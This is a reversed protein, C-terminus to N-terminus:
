VANDRMFNDLGRRATTRVKNRIFPTWGLLLGSVGLAQRSWRWFDFEDVHRFIKGDRFEFSSRIINHVRKGTRSFTYRAEWLCSGRDETATVQSFTVQLDKGAMILMQWMAKVEAANLDQFVPDRFTAEPHYMDQMTRYDKTQFATYFRSIM